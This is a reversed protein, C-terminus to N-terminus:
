GTVASPQDHAKDGAPIFLQARWQPVPSPTAVDIGLDVAVIQKTYAQQDCNLLGARRWPQAAALGLREILLRDHCLGRLGM